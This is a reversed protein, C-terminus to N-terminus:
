GLSITRIKMERQLLMKISRFNVVGDKTEQSGYIELVVPEVIVTYPMNSNDMVNLEMQFREAGVCNMFSHADSEPLKMSFYIVQNQQTVSIGKIANELKEKSDDIFSFDFTDMKGQSALSTLVIENVRKLGNM